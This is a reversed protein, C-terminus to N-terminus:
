KGALSILQKGLELLNNNGVVKKLQMHKTRGRRKLVRQAESLGLMQSQPLRGGLAPLGVIKTRQTRRNVEM